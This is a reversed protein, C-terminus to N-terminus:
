CSPRARPPSQPARHSHAEGITAGLDDRGCAGNRLEFLRRRFDAFDPAFAQDDSGVNRVRALDVRHSRRRELFEALDVDQYVVGTCTLIREALWELRDGVILPM